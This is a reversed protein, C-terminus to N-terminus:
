LQKELWPVMVKNFVSSARNSDWWRIGHGAGEVPYIECSAGAKRMRDCMQKSQEFPVLMDSAGHIFLFPPMGRRVNEIPSLQSLGALIFSEWPSGKITNQMQAPVYRSNKVLSVLDTPTYIAVVAKVSVDAGGRLVAMAALQGGASEGILAIRNPDINYEDAHAKVYRIASQVDDIAVGFQTVDTALRYSISFWALGAQSLPEFLPEVDIRRDGRVWGGGHVIIAAPTKVPSNPLCADLRLSVGNVQAYEVDRIAGPPHTQAYTASTNLIMLFPLSWAWKRAIM